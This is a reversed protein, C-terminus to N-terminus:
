GEGLGFAVENRRQWPLTMPSDYFHFYPGERKHLGREAIWHGLGEAQRRLAHDTPWGSFRRVAQRSPPVTVFRIRSDRPAPLASAGRVEPMTFRVTWLDEGAPLQSVPVTMEIRQNEANGGFIYRALVRFGRTIATSRDGAMTVEAVLYPGYRRIETAAEAFELEYPPQEYGKYDIAGNM